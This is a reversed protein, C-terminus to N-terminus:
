QQIARSRPESLLEISHSPPSRPVLVRLDRVDDHDHGDDHPSLAFSQALSEPGHSVHREDDNAYDRGHDRAHAGDDGRARAHVCLFASNLPICSLCM